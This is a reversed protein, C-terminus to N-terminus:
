ATSGEQNLNLTRPDGVARSRPSEWRALAILLAGVLASLALASVRAGVPALLVVMATLGADVATAGTVVISEGLAVIM